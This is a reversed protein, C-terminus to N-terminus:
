KEVHMSTVLDFCPALLQPQEELNLIFYLIPYGEENDLSM